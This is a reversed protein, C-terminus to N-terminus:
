VGFLGKFGFLKAVHRQCSDVLAKHIDPLQSRDRKKLIDCLIGNREYSDTCAQILCTLLVSEIRSMLLYTFLIKNVRSLRM